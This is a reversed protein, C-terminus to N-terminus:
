WRRCNSHAYEGGEANICLLFAYEFNKPFGFKTNSPEGDFLVTQLTSSLESGDLVATSRVKQCRATLCM